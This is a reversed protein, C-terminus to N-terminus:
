RAVIHQYFSEGCTMEGLKEVMGRFRELFAETVPSISTGPITPLFIERYFSEDGTTGGIKRGYFREVM